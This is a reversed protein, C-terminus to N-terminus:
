GAQYGGLLLVLGAVAVIAGALVELVAVARAGGRGGGGALRVALRKGYVALCALAGVTIFTGLAMALTAAVGAAFERQSLAFVLIIIAGTCPRLGASFTVAAMERFTGLRGVEEPTPLHAHDRCAFVGCSPDACRAADQAAPAVAEEARFRGSAAAQAPRFSLGGFPDAAPPPQFVTILRAAKRWLVALGVLAVLAFSGLEIARASANIASTSADLAVALVGVIVIASLAQLLSSALAIMLGRGLSRRGDAVLYGSIVAKGHGPGAAHFVGYAFGLAILTWLASIGGAADPSPAAFAQLAGVMRTYFVSQVAVITGGIGTPAPATERLGASFPHRQPTSEPPTFWAGSILAYLGAVLALAAIAVAARRALAFLRARASRAALITDSM